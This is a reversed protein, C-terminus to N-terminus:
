RFNSNNMPLEYRSILESEESLYANILGIPTDVQSGKRAYLTGKGGNKKLFCEWKDAEPEKTGRYDGKFAKSVSLEWARMRVRFQPKTAGLRVVRGGIAFAYVVMEIHRYDDRLTIVFDDGRRCFVGVKEFKYKRRLKNESLMRAEPM